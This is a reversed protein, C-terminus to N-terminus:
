PMKSLYLYPTDSTLSMAVELTRNDRFWKEIWRPEQKKMYAHSPFIFDGLGWCSQYESIHWKTKGKDLGKAHHIMAQIQLTICHFDWTTIIIGDFYLTTWVWIAKLTLVSVDSKHRPIKISYVHPVYAFCTFRVKTSWYQGLGAERSIFSQSGLIKVDWFATGKWSIQIFHEEKTYLRQFNEYVVNKATILTDM